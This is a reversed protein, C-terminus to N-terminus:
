GYYKFIIKSTKHIIDSWYEKDKIKDSNSLVDHYSGQWSSAIKESLAMKYSTPFGYTEDVSDTNINDPKLDHDIVLVPIHFQISIDRCKKYFLIKNNCIILHPTDKAFYLNGFTILNHNLSKITNEFALNDVPTWLINLRDQDSLLERSLIGTLINM